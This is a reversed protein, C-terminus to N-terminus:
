ESGVRIWESDALMVEYRAKGAFEDLSCSFSKRRNEGAVVKYTVLDGTIATVRWVAWRKGIIGNSYCRHLQILDPSM